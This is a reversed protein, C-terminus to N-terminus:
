KSKFCDLYHDNFQLTGNLADSYVSMFIQLRDYMQRDISCLHSSNVVHALVSIQTPWIMTCKSFLLRTTTTQGNKISVVLADFDKSEMSKGDFSIFILLLVLYCKSKM